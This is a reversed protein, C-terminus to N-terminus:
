SGSHFCLRSLRGLQQAMARGVWSDVVAHPAAPNFYMDKTNALSHKQVKTARAMMEDEFVSVEMDLADVVEESNTSRIIADVLELADEMMVNVGEGVHPTMLHAADGFLTVKARHKWRRVPSLTYLSCATFDNVDAVQILKM